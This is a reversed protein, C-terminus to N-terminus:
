LSLRGWPWLAAQISRGGESKYRLAGVVQAVVYWVEYTHRSGADYVEVGTLCASYWLHIEYIRVCRHEDARLFM